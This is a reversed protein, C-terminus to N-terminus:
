EAKKRRREAERFRGVRQECDQYLSKVYNIFHEVRAVVTQAAGNRIHIGVYVQGTLKM